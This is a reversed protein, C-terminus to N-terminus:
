SLVGTYLDHYRQALKVWSREEVMTQRAATALRERLANDRVLASCHAQLEQPTDDAFLLGNVGHDILERLGGIDRGIVAKGMAMAELPKLPTVTETMPHKLRPYIFIDIVSYYKLIDEYPVRGTFIVRDELGLEATLKKLNAEDEGSGVMLFVADPEAALIAPLQRMLFDLGEFLFFSGIFGLVCRGALRYRSVLEEDKPQPSFRETDVGNPVLAIKHEPIGRRTLYNCLSHSITVIRDAAQFTRGEMFDIYRYPLSRSSFKGRMVGSDQVLGRLEYIFPLNLKRAARSAPYGSYFYSHGHILDPTTQNGIEVLKKQFHRYLAYKQAYYRLTGTGKRGSVGAPISTRFYRVGQIDDYPMDPQAHLLQNPSTVAFADIGLQRQASLIEHSRTTYGVVDPLSSLLVHMIKM